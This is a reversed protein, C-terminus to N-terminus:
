YKVMVKHAGTDTCTYVTIARMSWTRGERRLQNRGEGEGEEEKKGRIRKNREKDRGGRGGGGEWGM